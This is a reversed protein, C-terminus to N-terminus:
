SRPAGASPLLALCNLALQDEAQQRLRLFDLCGGDSMDLLVLEGEPLAGCSSDSGVHWLGKLREEALHALAQAARGVALLSTKQRSRKPAPAF